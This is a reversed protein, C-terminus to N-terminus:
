STLWQALHYTSLYRHKGSHKQAHHAHTILASVLAHMCDRARRTAKMGRVADFKSAALEVPLM